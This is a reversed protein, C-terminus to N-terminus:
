GRMETVSVLELGYGAPAVHKDHRDLFLTQLNVLLDKRRDVTIGLSQLFADADAETGGQSRITIVRGNQADSRDRELRAIRNAITPM